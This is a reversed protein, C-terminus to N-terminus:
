CSCSRMPDQCKQLMLLVLKCAASSEDGAETQRSMHLLLFHDQSAHVDPLPSLNHKDLVCKM